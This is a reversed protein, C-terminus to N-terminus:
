RRLAFSVSRRVERRHTVLRANVTVVEADEENRQISVEGTTGDPLLAAAPLTAAGDALTDLHAEAWARGSDVLQGIVISENADRGLRVVRSFSGSMLVCLTGALVIFVLVLVLVAAGRTRVHGRFDRRAPKDLTRHRHISGPSEIEPM